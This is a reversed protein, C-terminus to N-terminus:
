AHCAAVTSAVMARKACWPREGLAHGNGLESPLPVCVWRAAAPQLRRQPHGPSCWGHRVTPAPGLDSAATAARLQQVGRGAFAPTAWIRAPVKTRRACCNRADPLPTIKCMPAIACRCRTQSWILLNPARIERAESLQACALTSTAPSAACGSTCQCTHCRPPRARGSAM